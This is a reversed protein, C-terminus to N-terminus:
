QYDFYSRRPRYGRRSLDWRLCSSFERSTSGISVFMMVQNTQVPGGSFLVNSNAKSFQYKLYPRRSRCRRRAISSSVWRVKQGTSASCYSPRGFTRIAGFSPAAILFVGKGLPAKM